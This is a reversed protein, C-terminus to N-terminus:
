IFIIQKDLKTRVLLKRQSHYLVLELIKIKLPNKVADTFDIKVWGSM